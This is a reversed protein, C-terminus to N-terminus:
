CLKLDLTKTASVPETVLYIPNSNRFGAQEAAEQTKQKASNSWIAPVTVVFDIPTSSVVGASLRSRLVSMLHNYLFTLYIKTLEEAPLSDKEQSAGDLKRCRLANAEGRLTRRYRPEGVTQVEPQAKGPGSNPFGM